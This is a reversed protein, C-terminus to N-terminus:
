PPEIAQIPNRGPYNRQHMLSTRNYKVMMETTNCAKKANEACKEIFGGRYLTIKGIKVYIKSVNKNLEWV